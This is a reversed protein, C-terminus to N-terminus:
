KLLQSLRAGLCEHSVESFNMGCTEAMFEECSFMKSLSNKGFRCIWKEFSLIMADYFRKPQFPGKFDM